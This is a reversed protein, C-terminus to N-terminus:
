ASSPMRSGRQDRPSPSTYLLCSQNRSIVELTRASGCPKTRQDNAPHTSDSAGLQEDEVQWLETPVLEGGDNSSAPTSPLIWGDTDPMQWGTPPQLPLSTVEAEAGDNQAWSADERIRMRMPSSLAITVTDRTNEEEM